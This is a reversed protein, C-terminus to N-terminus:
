FLDLKRESKRKIIQLFLVQMTFAPARSGIMLKRCDSHGFRRSCAVADRSVKDAEEILLGIIAAEPAM